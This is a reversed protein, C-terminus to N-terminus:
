YPTSSALHAAMAAAAGQPDNDALAEIIAEHEAAIRDLTEDEWSIERTALRTLGRLRRLADEALHHGVAHPIHLHFDDDCDLYANVDRARIARRARIMILRLQDVDSVDMSLAAQSAFVPELADRMMVVEALLGDTPNAIVVQRRAGEELIGQNLLEAFAERVPTRSVGLMTGIQTEGLSTGPQFEGHLIARRLQEYVRKSTPTKDPAASRAPEPRFGKM